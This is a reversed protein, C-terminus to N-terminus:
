KRFWPLWNFWKWEKKEFKLMPATTTGTSTATSTSHVGLGYGFKEDWYNRFREWMNMSLSSTVDVLAKKAEKVATEVKNGAEKIQAKTSTSITTSSLQALVGQFTALETKAMAIKTKAIEMLATSSAVSAGKAQFQAIMAETRTAIKDLDAVAKVYRDGIERKQKELKEDRPGKKDKNEDGKRENIMKEKPPTTSGTGSANRMGDYALAPVAMSAFMSLSIVSAVLKQSKM